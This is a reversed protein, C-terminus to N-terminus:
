ASCYGGKAVVGNVATELASRPLRAPTARPGSVVLTRHMTLLVRRTWWRQASRVMTRRRRM